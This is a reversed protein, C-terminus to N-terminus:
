GKIVGTLRKISNGCVRLGATAKWITSNKMQDLEADKQNLEETIDNVRRQLNDIYNRHLLYIEPHAVDLPSRKESIQKDLRGILKKKTENVVLFTNQRYWWQVRSDHWIIPRVMDFFRFQNNGFLGMWYSPWRENVHHMGGQGPAAASFLLVDSLSCFNDVFDQAHKKNLHEAVELSIALDYKEIKPFGLTFDIKSYEEADLLLNEEAPMGGDYGKVKSVGSRKFESLWTGVGCGIDVVSSVGGVLKMVVPVIVRASSISGDIQEAYFSEDYLELVENKHKANEQGVMGFGGIKSCLASRAIFIFGM